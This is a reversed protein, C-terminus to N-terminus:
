KTTKNPRTEIRFDTAKPHTAKVMFSFNAKPMSSTTVWPTVGTSVVMGDDDLWEVRYDFIFRKRNHNYGSVTVELLGLDNKRDKVETIQIGPRIFFDVVAGFTRTIVSDGATDSKVGTPTSVRADNSGPHCSAVGLAILCVAVYYVKM